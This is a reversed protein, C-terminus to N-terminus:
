FDTRIIYVTVTKMGEPRLDYGGRGANDRTEEFIRLADSLTGEALPLLKEAATKEAEYISEKMVSTGNTHLTDAGSKLEEAGKALTDMGAALQSTGEALQAAGTHVQEAGDKLQIMGGNLQEAGEAAKAAGDTYAKLGNVFTNVQDLQTKLAVLSDHGAGAAALRASVTEDKELYEAVHEKVLSEVQEKLAAEIQAQVEDSEMQAKLATRIQEAQKDSVKGNEVAAQYDEASLELGAAQLVAELVKGQVAETVANRITDTNAEVQPRVAEEVQAAAAAKLNEPDLQEAAADLVQAYNEETLEPLTIGAEELGAAALQQNATQLVAAFLQRAGENLADSNETLTKLGSDLAAAGEAATALGASLTETGSSLASAGEQVQDAGTKLEAAGGALSAAGGALESAGDDLKTLGDNMETIKAALNKTKGNTEAIATGDKLSTLLATVENLEGHADFDIKKDLERCVLDVPDASTLTMMWNLEAHDAHFDATFSAPLALRDDMGPVAWGVLVQRGMVSLVAANEMKLDSIGKEPLPLVTVALAPMAETMKYSVTLTVDGTKNKMDEPTIEQGDMTLTVNPLIAPTEGSTGQYIIDKGKAQWTLNEGELVFAETGSMNEINSLRTRDKLEDMGEANELRISDTISEVTGDPRTVVYVREHKINEALASSSLMMTLALLLSVIKKSM